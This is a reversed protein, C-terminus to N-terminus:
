ISYSTEEHDYNLYKFLLLYCTYHAIGYAKQRM